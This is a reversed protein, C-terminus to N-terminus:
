RALARLGAGIVGADDGLVAPVVPCAFWPSTRPHTAELTSVAADGLGGGIVVLEPDLVAVVTDVAHRWAAGWRELVEAARADTARSELLAQATTGSPLGAERMLRGLATGSAETEACGNRGCNCTAGMRDLTLHGLQGANSRGRLLEGGVAVAGGIGTGATFLVVDDADTAAGLRLEALLAMGADNELVTPRGVADSVLAGLRQGALEAYGSSLVTTRDADLRGPVGIGVAQVADDLLERCLDVVLAAPDPGSDTRLRRLDSLRGAADVRAARVNTGGIDVGIASGPLLAPPM